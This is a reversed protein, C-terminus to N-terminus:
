LEQFAKKGAGDDRGSVFGGRSAGGDSHGGDGQANDKKRMRRNSCESQKKIGKLRM